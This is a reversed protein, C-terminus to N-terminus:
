NKHSYKLNIMHLHRLTVQAVEKSHSGTYCSDVMLVLHHANFNEMYDSVESISIWNGIKWKKQGDIPIWYTKDSVRDGHGSYYILVYDKDTATQRLENLANSFKM